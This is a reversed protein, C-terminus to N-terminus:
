AQSARRQMLLRQVAQSRFPRTIWERSDQPHALRIASTGPLAANGLAYQVHVQVDPESM